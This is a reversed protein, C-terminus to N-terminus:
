KRRQIALLTIDDSREAELVFGEVQEIVREAIKEPSLDAVGTVAKELRDEGFLDKAQNMAETVGDTYVLLTEGPKLQLEREGFKADEFVGLPMGGAPEYTPKGQAPVLIPPNHGGQGYVMRGTATEVIGLIMTVFLSAQNEKALQANVRNMIEVPGRGPVATARILTRTVAMFIGAAIGKGSVDGVVFCMKGPEITFFDYLDGSVEKAPELRAFLEIGPAEERTPFVKPLLGGQLERALDLDRQVAARELAAKHARIRVLAAAVLGAFYEVMTEDGSTFASRGIPNLFEIVGVCEGGDLLPSALLAKTKWGTKEDAKSYFRSDKSVDDVRITKREKMATGVIGQGKPVRLTGLQPTSDGQASHIVLEGTEEEPLFISCAEAQIWPRSKELIMLLLGSLDAERGMEGALRFLPGYDVEQQKTTSM